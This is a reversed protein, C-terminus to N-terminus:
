GAPPAISPGDQWTMAVARPELRRQPAEIKESLMEVGRRGVEGAPMVMQATPFGLQHATDHSVGVISLDGPVALGGRAAALHVRNVVHIGQAILATPRDPGSLLQGLAADDLGVPADHPVLGAEASAAEYGRRGDAVSHHVHGGEPARAALNGPRVHAIRRHGFEILRQTAEAVGGEIDPYVADHERRDALWIAPLEFREILDMLAPPTQWKYNLLLGDAALAHLIEGMYRESSLRADDLEALSLSLRHAALGRHVGRLLESHLASRAPDDSLVMAVSGFRQRRVSQASYNPRHGLELAARQVQQRTAPSIKGTGRLAHSVTMASVGAAQAVQKMTVSGPM